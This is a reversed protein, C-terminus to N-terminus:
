LHRVTATLHLTAAHRREWSVLGDRRLHELARAITPHSLGTAKVLSAYTPRPDHFLAALVQATSSLVVDVADPQPRTGPVFFVSGFELRQTFPPPPRKM